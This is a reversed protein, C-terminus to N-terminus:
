PQVSIRYVREPIGLSAEDLFFYPSASLTLNTLAEWHSWGTSGSILDVRVRTGVPEQIWFGRVLGVSTIRRATTGAIRYFREADPPLSMRVVRPTSAPPCNTVTQWAAANDLALGSELAVAGGDGAEWELLLRSEAEVNSVLAIVPPGSVVGVQNSAVIRYTGERARTINAFSLENTIAGPIPSDNFLWQVTPKPQGTVTATLTAQGGERFVVRSAPQLIRPFAECLNLLISVSDDMLNCVALDPAGDDNFDGAAIGGPYSGATFAQPPNFTGDGKGTWVRLRNEEPLSAVLDQIGDQNLDIATVWVVPTGCAYETRPGLSGNAQGLLVSVVPTRSGAVAVDAHGDRNFDGVTLGAPGAAVLYTRGTTFSGNGLGRLVTIMSSAQNAVVADPYGDGDFDAVGLGYTPYAGAQSWIRPRFTGDGKGLLVSVSDERSSEILLDPRNDRNFDGVLVRTTNPGAACDGGRRFSGDGNGLLISITDSWSNAVALDPHGDRNLDAICVDTPERGVVETGAVRFLGGGQSLLITITGIPHGASRQSNAVVLDLKGDHNLDGVAVSTPGVGVNFDAHSSLM